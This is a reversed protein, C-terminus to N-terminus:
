LKTYERRNPFAVSGESDKKLKTCYKLKKCCNYFFPVLLWLLFLTILLLWLGLLFLLATSSLISYSYQIEAKRVVDSANRKPVVGVICFEPTDVFSNFNHNCETTTTSTISCFSTFSSTSNEENWGNIRYTINGMVHSNAEFHVGFFYYSNGALIISISFNNNKICHEMYTFTWSGNLLFSEYEDVNDYVVLVVPCESSNYDASVQIQLRLSAIYQTYLEYIPTNEEPTLIGEEHITTNEKRIDDCNSINFYIPIIQTNPTETFTLQKVNPRVRAIPLVSQQILQTIHVSGHNSEQHISIITSSLASATCMAFFIIIYFFFFMNCKRKLTTPICCRCLIKSMWVDSHNNVFDLCRVKTTDRKYEQKSNSDNPPTCLENIVESGRLLTTSQLQLSKAPSRVHPSCPALSNYTPSPIISLRPNKICESESSAKSDTTEDITTCQQNPESNDSRLNRSRIACGHREARSQDTISDALNILGVTPNKLADSLLSWTVHQTSLLTALMERLCSMNSTDHHKRNIDTLVHYSLDLALGLDFWHSSASEHLQEFVHQLDNITLAKDLHSSKDVLLIIDSEPIEPNLQQDRVGTKKCVDEMVSTIRQDHVHSQVETNLCVDEMVSNCTLSTSLASSAGEVTSASTMSNWGDEQTSTSEDASPSMPLTDSDSSTGHIPEDSQSDDHTSIIPVSIIPINAFIEDCEVLVRLVEQHQKQDAIDFATLGVNNRANADSLELLYEAAGRNNFRAAIHLPTDGDENVVSVNHHHTEVLQTVLLGWKSWDWRCALHLLTMGDSDRISSVDVTPDLGILLTLASTPDGGDQGFAKLLKKTSNDEAKLIVQQGIKVEIFANEKLHQMQELSLQGYIHKFYAPVRFVLETCGERVNKLNLVQHPIIQEWCKMFVLELKQIQDFTITQFDVDIKCTIEVSEIHSPQPGFDDVFLFCRRNVYQRFLHEYRLLAQDNEYPFLFEERMVSILSYNFWSCFNNQLFVSLESFSTVDRFLIQESPRRYIPNFYSEQPTLLAQVYQKVKTIDYQKELNMITNTLLSCFKSHIHRTEDRLATMFMKYSIETASVTDSCPTDRTCRKIQPPKSSLCKDRGTVHGLITCKGCDCQFSFFKSDPATLSAFGSLSTSVSRPQLEEGAQGENDAGIRQTQDCQQHQRQLADILKQVTAKTFSGAEELASVFSHFVLPNNKIQLLVSEMIRRAKDGADHTDNRLYDRDNPALIEFRLLHDSVDKPSQKICTLLSSHCDKIAKYEASESMISSLLHLILKLFSVKFFCYGM